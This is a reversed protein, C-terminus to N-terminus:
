IEYFLLGAVANALNTTRYQSKSRTHAFKVRFPVMMRSIPIELLIASSRM